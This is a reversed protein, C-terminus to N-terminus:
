VFHSLRPPPTPTGLEVASLQWGPNPALRGLDPDSAVGRVSSTLGLSSICTSVCMTSAVCPKACETCQSCEGPSPTASLTAQLAGAFPQAYGLGVGAALGLSLLVVLPLEIIRGISM